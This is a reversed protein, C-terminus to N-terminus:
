VDGLNPRLVFVVGRRNKAVYGRRCGGVQALGLMPAGLEEPEIDVVIYHVNRRQARCLIAAAGPQRGGHEHEISNRGAASSRWTSPPPWLRKRVM